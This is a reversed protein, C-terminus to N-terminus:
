GLQRYLSYLSQPVIAVPPADIVVLLSESSSVWRQCKLCPCKVEALITGHSLLLPQYELPWFIFFFFFFLFVHALNYESLHIFAM